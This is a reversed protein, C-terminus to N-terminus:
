QPTPAPPQAMERLQDYGKKLRTFRWPGIMVVAPDGVRRVAHQGKALKPGVEIVAHDGNAATLDFRYVLPEWAVPITDQATPFTDAMLNGLTNAILRADNPKAPSSAEGPLNGSVSWTSTKLSDTGERTLTVTTDAWTMVISRIEEAPFPVVRKDRWTQQGREFNFRTVQPVSYVENKGDVRVFLGNFDPSSTGVWFNAGGGGEIVVHVGSTDVGFTSQKAPNESAVSGIVMTDVRALMEEVAKQDARFRGESVIWTGGDKELNTINGATTIAAHTAGTPDFDKFVRGKRTSPGRIDDKYPREVLLVWAGLLILIGFLINRTRPNM